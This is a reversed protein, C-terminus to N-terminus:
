TEHKAEMSLQVMLADFNDVVRIEDYGEAGIVLVACGDDREALQEILREPIWSRKMTDRLRVIM